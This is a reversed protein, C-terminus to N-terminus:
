TLYNQYVTENKYFINISDEEYGDISFLNKTGEDSSDSDSSTLSKYKDTNRFTPEILLLIDEKEKNTISESEVYGALSSLLLICSGPQKQELDKILTSIIDRTRLSDEQYLAELKELQDEHTQELEAREKKESSLQKQIKELEELLDNNEESSISIEKQQEKLQYQATKLEKVQSESRDLQSDLFSKQEELIKIDRTKKLLELKLDETSKEMKQIISTTNYAIPRIDELEEGLSNIKAQLITIESSTELSEELSPTATLTYYGSPTLLGESISSNELSSLDEEMTNKAKEIAAAISAIEKSVEPIAATELISSIEKENELQNQLAQHTESLRQFQENLESIEKDKTSLQLQLDVKESQLKGSQSQLKQLVEPKPLDQIQLGLAAIQKDKSLLDNQLIVNTNELAKRTQTVEDLQSTFNDRQTQLDTKESQLTELQSELQQVVELKALAQIQTDLEAIKENKSDLTNQLVTNASELQIKIENAENLQVKLNNEQSQLNDKDTRITNLKSQLRQLDKDTPLSQIQQELIIIQEEKFRFDRQLAANTSELDDRAEELDIKEQQLKLIMEKPASNEIGQAPSPTQPITSSTQNLNRSLLDLLAQYVDRQNDVLKNILAYEETHPYTINEQNKSLNHIAQSLSALQEKIVQLEESHPTKKNLQNKLEEIKAHLQQIQPSSLTADFGIKFPVQEDQSLPSPIFLPRIKESGLRASPDLSPSEKFLSDVKEIIKEKRTKIEDTVLHNDKSYARDAKPNNTDRELLQITIGDKTLHIRLKTDKSPDFDPILALFGEANLLKGVKKAIGSQIAEQLNSPCPLSYGEQNFMQLNSINLNNIM